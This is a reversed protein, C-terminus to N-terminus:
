AAGRLAPLVTAVVDMREAEGALMLVAWAAGAARLRAFMAVLDEATGAWLDGIGLGRDRRAALMRGLEGRDRAVLALGAWTPEVRRGEAGAAAVLRAAKAEFREADLGWGNWGDALRAALDVVSNSTGGFWLPPGGPTAAPPLLPGDIAPVLEGGPWREGVFLSRCARATEELLRRRTPADPAAFGFADAEIHSADDGTGMALVFRGQAMDDLAAAQKALLGASRLTVRAVLTGVTLRDATAAVAALVSFSELSPGDLPGGLPVLHDFAFAGDFGLEQAARARDVARAPDDTFLPLLIGVKM